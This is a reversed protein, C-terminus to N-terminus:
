SSVRNPFSLELVVCGSDTRFPGHVEGPPRQHVLATADGPQTGVASRELWM